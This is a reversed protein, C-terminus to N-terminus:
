LQINQPTDRPTEILAKSASCIPTSPTSNSGDSRRSFSHSKPEEWNHTRSTRVKLNHNSITQPGQSNCATTLM